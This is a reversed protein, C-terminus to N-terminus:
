HRVSRASPGYRLHPGLNHEGEFLRLASESWLGEPRNFCNQLSCAM